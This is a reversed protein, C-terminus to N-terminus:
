GLMPAIGHAYFGLCLLVGLGLMMAAFAAWHAPGRLGTARTGLWAVPLCPGWALTVMIVFPWASDRPFANAAPWIRRIIPMAAELALAGPIGMLPVNGLTSVALGAAVSWLVSRRLPSM